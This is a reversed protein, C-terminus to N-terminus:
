LKDDKLDSILLGSRIERVRLKENEEKQRQQPKTYAVM